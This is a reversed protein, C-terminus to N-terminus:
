SIYFLNKIVNDISRCLSSWVVVVASGIDIAAL